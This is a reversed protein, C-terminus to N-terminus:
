SHLQCVEVNLLEEYREAMAKVLVQPAAAAAQIYIRDNSKIVKVANEASTVQYM